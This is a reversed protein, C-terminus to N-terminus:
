LMLVLIAVNFVAAIVMCTYWIIRNKTQQDLAYMKYCFIACGFCFVEIFFYFVLSIYIWTKDTAYILVDYYYDFKVQPQIASKLYFFDVKVAPDNLKVLDNKFVYFDVAQGKPQQDDSGDKSASLADINKRAPNFVPSKYSRYFSAHYPAIILNYSLHRKSRSEQLSDIRGETKILSDSIQSVYGFLGTTFLVPLLLLAILALTFKSLNGSPKYMTGSVVVEANQGPINLFELNVITGSVSRMKGFAGEFHLTIPQHVYTAADNNAFSLPSGLLPQRFRLEFFRQDHLQQGYRFSHVEPIVINKIVVSIPSEPM